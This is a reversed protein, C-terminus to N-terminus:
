AAIEKAIDSNIEIPDEGEFFPGGFVEISIDNITDLTGDLMLNYKAALQELENRTWISKTILVRVLVSAETDLGALKTSSLPEQALLTQALEPEQETFINNLLASVAVTESLKAEISAMDLTLGKEPQGVPPPPVTFGPRLADGAQITVPKTAARHAEHYLNQPDLGLLEYIRTLTKVEAPNVYGDSQALDVLFRGISEKQESPLMEIRRKIGNMTPFASVLWKTHAELRKTEEPSLKTLINVYTELRGKEEDSVTGDSGAVTSALHLVVTAATYEPSPFSPASTPIKFLVIDQEPKPVFSGFRPDPEIGVGIKSLLQAVSTAERKGFATQNVSMPLHRLLETLGVQVLDSCKFCSAVYESVTQLEKGGNNELLVAPLLAIAEVTSRASANRGLYRSYADLEEICAQAIARLENIPEKLVTVDFLDDFLVQNQRGGFSASATRYDVKLMTKNQRFVHGKGFREAYKFRFLRSFEERCRQAPTRLNTFPDNELWALAWDASLPVRDTAMQALAVKMVPPLEYSGPGFSPSLKYLRDKPQAIRLMDIFRSAYGNFSGNHSYIGLLREVETLIAPLEASAAPSQKADALARRELGYFYLFVYGIYAQPNKKGTSLWELYAARSAPSIESYSPWYSMSRGEYDPDAKRVPLSPDILAPETSWGSISGLGRGFYLLGGQISYGGAEVARGEPMWVTDSLVTEAPRPVSHGAYAGYEHQPNQAAPDRSLPPRQKQRGHQRSRKAFFRWVFAVIVALIIYEM